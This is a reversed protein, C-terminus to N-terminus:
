DMKLFTELSDAARGMARALSLKAVNHAFVSNIYDLDASSLTEQSQVIEVSNTAGAQFRTNSQDLTEKTLEINKKALEVQSEAAQLDLYANRVESEIQGKVDELEARRQAIVTDAEEIDGTTRGGNWIPVHLTAAVSFTGHSQSPNVGILGYDGSVTLSPLHEDKAASRASEAAHVAAEAAKLDARQALAQKLADELSVAPAPSFPLDNSLEYKDNPPLGILRALNIKQKAVDNQLTILRQQQTLAEVQSRNVDLQAIKGFSFMDKSQDYMVNATKLQARASEVRAEAAIVQLYAGGIALVVLERADQASLQNARLTENSARFNNLATMDAVTQTLNARVDMYNFPGVVTPISVGPITSNFRLGLAKLDTQEVTESAYGSVNPLLASKAIRSLAHAQGVAQTMGVAGLNYALGRQIAERLSLKGGFPMKATSDASGAYPGQTQVTPNLTNVSATTGPVPSEGAVVGGTQGTRGSAPLQTAQSGQTQGGTSGVQACAPNAALIAAITIIAVSGIVRFPLKGIRRMHQPGFREKDSFLELM